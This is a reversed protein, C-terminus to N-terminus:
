IASKRQFCIAPWLQFAVPVGIEPAIRNIKWELRYAPRHGNRGPQSKRGSNNPDVAHIQQQDPAHQKM